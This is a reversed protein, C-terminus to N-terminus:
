PTFISYYDNINTEIGTRNNTSDSSYIVIEQITGSWFLSNTHYAGIRQQSTFPTGSQLSLTSAAETADKFMRFVTSTAGAIFSYLHQNSDMSGYEIYPSSSGYYARDANSVQYHWYRVNTDTGLTFQMRNGSTDDSACVTHVSLNNINLDSISLNMFQSAGNFAVACENNELMVGTSSDYIKPQNGTTTQTADNGNGSQDYWVKV